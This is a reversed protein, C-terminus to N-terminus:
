RTINDPTLCLLIVFHVTKALRPSFPNFLIYIYIYIFNISSIFTTHQTPLTWIYILFYLFTLTSSIYIYIFHLRINRAGSLFHIIIKRQHFAEARFMLLGQKRYVYILIWWYGDISNTDMLIWYAELMLLLLSYM